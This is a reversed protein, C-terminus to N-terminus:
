EVFFDINVNSNFKIEGPEIPTTVNTEAVAVKAMGLGYVRPYHQESGCSANVQKIGSIKVGLTQAVISAQSKANNTAKILLKKCCEDNNDLRFSINQVQNAGNTIAKDIFDGVNNIQKTTVTLQNSATYGTIINKRKANDYEYLPQLTYSSTKVSEGQAPKILQKMQQVVKDAKKSNNIVAEQANKATTNVSLVIVATDSPLNESAAGSVSIVGKTNPKTTEQAQLNGSYMVSLVFLLVFLISIKKYM